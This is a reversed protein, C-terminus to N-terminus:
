STSHAMGSGKDSSVDAGCTSSIAVYAQRLPLSLGAARKPPYVALYGPFAVTSATSRLVYGNTGGGAINATAQMVVCRWLDAQYFLNHQAQHGSRAVLLHFAPKCWPCCM